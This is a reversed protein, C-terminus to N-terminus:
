SLGHARKSQICCNQRQPCRVFMALKHLRSIVDNVSLYTYLSALPGRGDGLHQILQVIDWKPPAAV